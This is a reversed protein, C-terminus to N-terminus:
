KKQFWKKVTTLITDNTIVPIEEVIEEAQLKSIEDLLTQVKAATAEEDWDVPNGFEDLSLVQIKLDGVTIYSFREDVM